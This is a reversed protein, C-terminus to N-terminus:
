LNPRTRTSLFQTKVVLHHLEESLKLTLLDDKDEQHEFLHNYVPTALQGQMVTPVERIMEDVYNYMTIKVKGIEMFNITM